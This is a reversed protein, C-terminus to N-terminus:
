YVAYNPITPLYLLRKPSPNLCILAASSIVQAAEALMSQVQENERLQHEILSRREQLEM